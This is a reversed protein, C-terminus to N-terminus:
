LGYPLEKIIFRALDGTRIQYEVSEVEVPVNLATLKPFEACVDFCTCGDIAVCVNDYSSHEVYGVALLRERFLALLNPAEFGESCSEVLRNLQIAKPDSPTAVRYRYVRLQLERASALQGLSSIHITDSESRICKVEVENEPLSYDHDAGCPGQWADIATRPGADPHRQLTRLFLLEGILGVISSRSLLGTETRQFLREWSRVRRELTAAVSDGSVVRDIEVALDFALVDFVDRVTPDTLRVLIMWGGDPLRVPYTDFASSKVKISPPRQGVRLGLIFESYEDRAIYCRETCTGGILVAHYQDKRVSPTASLAAIAALWDERTM